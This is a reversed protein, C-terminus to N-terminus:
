RLELKVSTFTEGYSRGTRVVDSERRRSSAFFAPSRVRRGHDIETRQALAVLYDSEPQPETVPNADTDADTNDISGPEILRTKRAPKWDFGNCALL